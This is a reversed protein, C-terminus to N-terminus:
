KFKRTAYEYGCIYLKTDWNLKESLQASIKNGQAEIAMSIQLSQLYRVGAKELEKFVIESWVDRWSKWDNSRWLYYTNSTGYRVKSFGDKEEKDDRFLFLSIGIPGIISLFRTIDSDGIKYLMHRTFRNLKDTISIGRSGNTEKTLGVIPVYFFNDGYRDVINSAAFAYRTDRIDSIYEWVRSDSRM